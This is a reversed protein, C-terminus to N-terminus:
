TDNQFPERLFDRLFIISKMARFIPLSERPYGLQSTNSGWEFQM